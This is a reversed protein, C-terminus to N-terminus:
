DEALSDYLNAEKAERILEEILSVEQNIAKAIEQISVGRKHNRCVFQAVTHKSSNNKLPVSKNQVKTDEELFGKTFNFMKKM